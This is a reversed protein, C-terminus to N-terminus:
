IRRYRADCLSYLGFAILGAAVVGLLFPGYSAHEVKALAGDLGVAKRPDFDIASEILFVGVLGFVVARALHGFTGIWEVFGRVRPSMQSTKSDELFDKSIGRYGQYLAVAILVAGALGVLWTGGPWGLVGATATKPSGSGGSGSGALIEVALAFLGAYVLGSALAVIRDFASDSREPGRGLLAHVLRWFGYGALGVAVLVLLVKGFPQQAIARLAGQQDAARGGNGAALEVAFVGILGYVVGRAVFGARALWEFGPHQPVEHASRAARANVCELVLRPPSWIRTGAAHARGNLLCAIPRV